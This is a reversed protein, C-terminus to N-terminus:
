AIRAELEVREKNFRDEQKILEGKLKEIEARKTDVRPDFCVISHLDERGMRLLEMQTTLKKVQKDYKDKKVNVDSEFKEKAIELKLDSQKLKEEAETSSIYHAKFKEKLMNTQNKEVELLAELRAKAGM